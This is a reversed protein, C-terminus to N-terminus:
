IEILEDIEQLHLKFHRLYDVVSDRLSVMTGDGSNWLNDLKNEDINKVVHIFHLNLYKWLALLLKRDEHQYNQIAIWRDNNGYTAYNPFELPSERYQQHVVRHLNNSASDIMHGIIQKISRNQLNKRETILSEPLANLKPEWEDILSPLADILPQFETIM